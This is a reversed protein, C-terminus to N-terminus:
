WALFLLYIQCLKTGKRSKRQSVWLSKKKKQMMKVFSLYHSSVVKWYMESNTDTIQEYSIKFNISQNLQMTQIIKGRVVKQHQPCTPTLTNVKGNIVM